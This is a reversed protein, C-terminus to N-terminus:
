VALPKHHPSHFWFCFWMCVCMHKCVYVAYGSHQIICICRILWACLTREAWTCLLYYCKIVDNCWFIKRVVPREHPFDAPRWHNENLLGTIRLKTKWELRFLRSLVTANGTIKSAKVSMSRLYECLGQFIHEVCPVIMTCYIFCNLLRLWLSMGCHYASSSRM